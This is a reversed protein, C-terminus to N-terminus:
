LECVNESIKEYRQQQVYAYRYIELLESYDNKQGNPNKVTKWKRSDMLKLYLGAAMSLIFAHCIKRVIGPNM